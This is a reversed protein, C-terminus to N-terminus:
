DSEETEAEIAVSLHIIVIVVAFIIVIFSYLFGQRNYYSFRQCWISIVDATSVIGHDWGRGGDGYIVEVALISCGRIELEWEGWAPLLDGAELTQLLDQSYRVVSLILLCQPVRVCVCM